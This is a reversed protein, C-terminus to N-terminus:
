CDHVRAQERVVVSVLLCEHACQERLRTHTRWGGERARRGAEEGVPRIIFIFITRVYPRTQTPLITIDLIDGVRSWYPTPFSETLDGIFIARRILGM